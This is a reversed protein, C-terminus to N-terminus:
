SCPAGSVSGTPSDILYVSTSIEFPDSPANFSTPNPIARVTVTALSPNSTVQVQRSLRDGFPPLTQCFQTPVEAPTLRLRHMASELSDGAITAYSSQREALAISRAAGIGLAELGLLGIALIVMAVVVEILTFGSDGALTRESDVTCAGWPQFSSPIKSRM